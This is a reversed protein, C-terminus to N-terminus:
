EDHTWLEPTGMTYREPPESPAECRWAFEHFDKCGASHALDIILASHKTSFVQEYYAEGAKYAERGPACSLYSEILDKRHLMNMSRFAVIIDSNNRVKPPLAKPDQLISIVDINLHRGHFYLSGLVDADNGWKVHRDGM